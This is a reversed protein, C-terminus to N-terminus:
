KSKGKKVRLVRFSTPEVTFGKRHQEYYTVARGDALVGEEADGLAFMLSKKVSDLEENAAKITADLQEKSAILNSVATDDLVVVKNATKRLRKVVELSAKDRSPEEGDIVHRQWWETLTTALYHEIDDSREIRYHVIGRGAILAFLHAMPAEPACLLQTHVQVLYYDPVRDTYEDGWDGSVPGAIGTTKAEVISKDAIVQADLTAAIMGSSHIYRVNRYLPGLCGEAHNLIAGELLTGLGTADNGKWHEIIGKKDAWVDWASRWPNLGLIAGVDSAGIQKRREELWADRDFAPELATSM